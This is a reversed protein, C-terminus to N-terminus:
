EVIIEGLQSPNLHNHYKWTGVQTFTFSYTEGGQYPRGADFGALNTHSPHPNSAVWLSGPLTSNFFRVTDGVRITLSAPSFGNDAYVVTEKEPTTKELEQGIVEAEVEFGVLDESAAKNVDSTGEVESGSPAGNNQGTAPVMGDEPLVAGGPQNLLWWGGLLVALIVM